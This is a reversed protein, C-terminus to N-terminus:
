QGAWCCFLGSLMSIVLALSTMRVARPQNHKGAAQAVETQTGIGLFNFGLLHQLASGHRCGIGGFPVIGLQAIYGTDILGTLPEAVLSFLRSDVFGFHHSATGNCLSPRFTFRRRGLSDAKPMWNKRVARWKQTCGPQIVHTHGASSRPSSPRVRDPTRSDDVGHSSDPWYPGGAFRSGTRWHPSDM